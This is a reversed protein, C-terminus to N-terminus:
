ADVECTPNDVLGLLAKLDAPNHATSAMWQGDSPRKYEFRGSVYRYRLGDYAIERPVTIKPMPYKAAAVAAYESDKVPLAGDLFKTHRWLGGKRFAERAALVEERTKLHVPNMDGFRNDNAQPASVCPTNPDSMM